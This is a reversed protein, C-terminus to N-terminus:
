IETFIADASLRSKPLSANFDEDSRYGLAAIVVSSLGQERLDLQEDLIGSDFGEIPCCDIGMASAGLLLTGFALYVQKEMWHQSDKLDFRHKDSYFARVKKQLAKISEETFRGDSEEQALINEQHAQSLEVRSCFVIVHSANLIKPGNSSYMGPTANAIKQKGEDSSAIVFHWPQSNVSSPSLRLLERVKEFTSEDIKRTPDFAKTSHRNQAFQLIDM